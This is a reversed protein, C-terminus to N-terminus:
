PSPVPAEMGTGGSECVAEYVPGDPLQVRQGGGGGFFRQVRVKLNFQSKASNKCYPVIYIITSYQSNQM